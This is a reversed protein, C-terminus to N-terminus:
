REKERKARRIGLMVPVPRPNGDSPRNVTRVMIGPDRILMISSGGGDLNISETCGRSEMIIALEYLTVGESYGPQRGDVVALLLWRGSGDFGLATRPNLESDSGAPVIQSHVILPSFWDAVAERASTGSVIRDIHPKQDKDLWFAVRGVDNRSITKGQSVVMGIIDVPQGEHWNPHSKNGKDFSDFANANVAAVANFKNFLTVPPTLQSEAPGNGDPDDGPIAIVELDKSTLDIMLFHIKLPRPNIISETWCFLTGPKEPFLDVIERAHLQISIFFLCVIGIILKKM